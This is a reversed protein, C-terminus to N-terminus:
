RSHKTAERGKFGDGPLGGQLLHVELEKPGVAIVQAGWTGNWSDIVGLYEGQLTYLLGAAEASTYTDGALTNQPLMGLGAFPLAVSLGLMFLSRRLM